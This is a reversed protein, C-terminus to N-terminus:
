ITPTVTVEIEEEKIARWHHIKVQSQSDFLDSERRCKKENPHNLVSTIQLFEKGGRHQVCKQAKLLIM